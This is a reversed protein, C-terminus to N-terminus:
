GIAMGGCAVLTQGTIYRADDSALFLVAEAVEEPSAFRGLPITAEIRARDQPTRHAHARTDTYGPAIANVRIRPALAHALCKTLMVLAAKSVAYHPAGAGAVLGRMSAVNVIASGDGMVEAAARSCFFPGKVHVDMQEEWLAETIGWVDTRDVVGANNVLVDLRGFAAVTEAVLRACAEPSRVDARLSVARGGRAEISAVVGQAGQADTAYGVAVAAQAAAFRRAIAAGIGSSAGTVLVVRGALM